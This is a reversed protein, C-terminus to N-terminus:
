ETAFKSIALRARQIFVPNSSPGLRRYALRLSYSDDDKVDLPFSGNFPNYASFQWSKEAQDTEAGGNKTYYLIAKVASSAVEANTKIESYWSFFYAGAKLNNADLTLKTEETQSDMSSEAVSASTIPLTPYAGGVHAAVAADVADITAQSVTASTWHVIITDGDRTVDYPKEVVSSDDELEQKFVPINISSSSTFESASYYRQTTTTGM